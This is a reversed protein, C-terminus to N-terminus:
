YRSSRGSENRGAGIGEDGVWLGGLSEVAVAVDVVVREAVGVRAPEVVFVVWAAVPFTEVGVIVIVSRVGPAPDSSGAVIGTGNANATIVQARPLFVIDLLLYPLFLCCCLLFYKLM